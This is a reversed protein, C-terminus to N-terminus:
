KKFLRAELEKIKDSYDVKKRSKIAYSEERKGSVKPSGKPPSYRGRVKRDFQEYEEMLKYEERKRKDEFEQL